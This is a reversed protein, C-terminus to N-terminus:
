CAEVGHDALNQIDEDSIEELHDASAAGLEAAM